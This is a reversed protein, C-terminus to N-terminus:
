LFVIFNSLLLLQGTLPTLGAFLCTVCSDFGTMPTPIESMHVLKPRALTTSTPHKVIKRGINHVTYRQNRKNELLSSSLPKPQNKKSTPIVPFIQWYVVFVVCAQQAAQLILAAIQPNPQPHHLCKALPPPASPPQPLKNTRKKSCAPKSPEDSYSYKTLPSSPAEHNLDAEEEVRLGGGGDVRDSIQLWDPIKQFTHWTHATGIM